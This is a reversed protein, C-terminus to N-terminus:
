AEHKPQAQPLVPLPPLPNGLIIKPGSVRIPEMKQYNETLPLGVMNIIRDKEANNVYMCPPHQINILCCMKIIKKRRFFDALKEGNGVSEELEKQLIALRESCTCKPIILRVRASMKQPAFVVKANDIKM